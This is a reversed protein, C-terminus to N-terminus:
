HCFPALLKRDRSCLSSVMSKVIEKFTAPNSIALILRGNSLSPMEGKEYLSYQNIGFGLIKSMMRASFGYSKRIEKIKEASPMGHRKRYEDYVQNVNKEDLATTTFRLGTEPCEYYYHTVDYKEGRYKAVDQEQKLTAECDAFPSKMIM